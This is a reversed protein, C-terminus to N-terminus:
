AAPSASSGSSPVPTAGATAAATQQELYASTADAINQYDALTAKLTAIEQAQEAIQQILPTIAAHQNSLAQNLRVLRADQTPAAASTM